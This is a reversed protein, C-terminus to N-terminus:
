AAVKPHVPHSQLQPGLWSEFPATDSFMEASLEIKQAPMDPRKFILIIAKDMKFASIIQEKLISIKPAMAHACLHLTSPTCLIYPYIKLFHNIMLLYFGILGMMPINAFAFHIKGLILLTIAIVTLFISSKNKPYIRLTEKEKGWDFERTIDVCAQISILILLLYAM